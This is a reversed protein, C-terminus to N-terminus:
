PSMATATILFIWRTMQCYRPSSSSGQVLIATMEGSSVSLPLFFNWNDVQCLVFTVIHGKDRVAGHLGVIIKQFSSSNPFGSYDLPIWFLSWSDFFTKRAAPSSSGGRAGDHLCAGDDGVIASRRLVGLEVGFLAFSQHPM